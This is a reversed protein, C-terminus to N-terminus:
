GLESTDFGPDTSLLHEFRAQNEVLGSIQVVDAM